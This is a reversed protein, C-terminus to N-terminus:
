LVEAAHAIASPGGIRGMPIVPKYPLRSTGDIVKHLLHGSNLAEGM